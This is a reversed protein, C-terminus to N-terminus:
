PSWGGAAGGDDSGCGDAAGPGLEGTGPRERLWQETSNVHLLM